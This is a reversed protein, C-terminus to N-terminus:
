GRFRSAYGIRMAPRFFREVTVFLSGLIRDLDPRDFAQVGVQGRLYVGDEAGICFAMGYLKENRRLLLEYLQAHNEEPAPMVYTEYQLTRQGLTLWITTFDKEEGLLRIFWRRADPDRDVAGVVPNDRQLDVLWAEILAERGALEEDTAPPLDDAPESM